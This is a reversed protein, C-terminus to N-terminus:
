PVNGTSTHSIPWRVPQWWETSSSCLRCQQCVMQGCCCQHQSSCILARSFWWQRTVFGTLWCSFQCWCLCTPTHGCQSSKIIWRIIHSVVAHITTSSSFFTNSCVCLLFMHIVSVLLFLLLPQCKKPKDSYTCSDRICYRSQQWTRTLDQWTHFSSLSWPNSQASSDMSACCLLPIDGTQDGGQWRRWGRPKGPAETDRGVTYIARIPM